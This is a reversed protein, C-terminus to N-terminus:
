AANIPLSRELCHTMTVSLKVFRFWQEQNTIMIGLDCVLFLLFFLGILTHWDRHILLVCM